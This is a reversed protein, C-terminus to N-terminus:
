EFFLLNHFFKLGSSMLTLLNALSRLILTSLASCSFSSNTSLTIWFEILIDCFSSRPIVPLCAKLSVPLCLCDDFSLRDLKALFNSPISSSICCDLGLYICFRKYWFVFFHLRYKLLNLNHNRWWFRDFWNLKRIIRFAFTTLIYIFLFHLILLLKLGVIIYRM